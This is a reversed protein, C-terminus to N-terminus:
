KKEFISNYKNQYVIKYDHNNKLKKYLISDKEIIFVKFDYEKSFEDFDKIGMIVDMYEDFIDKKKNMKKIFVEARTDIYARYNNFELYPGDDFYNFIKINKSYNNNMYILIDNMKKDKLIYAGNICNYIYFSLIAVIFIAFIKISIVTKFKKIIPKIVFPFSCLLFISINRLNMFAMLSLGFFLLYEHITYKKRNFFIIFLQILFLIIFLCSNYQIMSKNSFINVKNMESINNNIINIGYSNISYFMNEYGYPNIFGVIFSVIMILILKKIRNDKKIFYYYGLEVVYPMCLVFFMLWMASHMNILILSLIPLFFIIKSEKRIYKELIYILILFILLSIVQPRPIIFLLVLLLDIISAILFSFYKNNSSILLCLKYLFFFILINILGIFTIIGISGMYKYLLYMIISFGPQQMVFKLNSHMTLMEIHPIGNNLIYRGHSLLFWIDTERSFDIICFMFLPFLIFVIGLSVKRKM